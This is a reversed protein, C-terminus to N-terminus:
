KQYQTNLLFLLIAYSFIISTVHQLTDRLPLSCCRFHRFYICWTRFIIFHVGHIVVLYQCILPNHGYYVVVFELWHFSWFIANTKGSYDYSGKKSFKTSALLFHETHTHKSDSSIHMHFSMIIFALQFDSFVDRALFVVLSMHHHLTIVDVHCIYTTYSKILM